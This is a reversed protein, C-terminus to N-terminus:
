PWLQSSKQARKGTKQALLPGIKISIAGSSLLRDEIKFNLNFDAM